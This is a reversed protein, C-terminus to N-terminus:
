KPWIEVSGLQDPRAMEPCARGCDTPDCVLYVTWDGLPTRRKERYGSLFTSGTVSIRNGSIKRWGTGVRGEIWSEHSSSDAAAKAPLYNLRVLRERAYSEGGASTLQANTASMEGIILAATAM